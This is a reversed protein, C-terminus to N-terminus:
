RLPLQTVSAIEDRVPTQEDTIIKVDRVSQGGSPFM